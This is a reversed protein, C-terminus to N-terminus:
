VLARALTFYALLTVMDTVALAIPGAAVQPDRRLLRLLYPIALGVAAAVTVGAVIGGTVCFLIRVDGMWLLEVAGVLLGCGAGLLVGTLAERGLKRALEAWSPRRGHLAQLALSASQISVSEALA